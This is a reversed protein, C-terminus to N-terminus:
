HHIIITIKPAIVEQECITGLEVIPKNLVWRVMQSSTNESESSKTSRQTWAIVKSLRNKDHGSCFHGLGHFVPDLM